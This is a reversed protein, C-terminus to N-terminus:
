RNVEDSDDTLSAGEPIELVELDPAATLAAILEHSGGIVTALVLWLNPFGANGLGVVPGAPGDYRMVEVIGIPAFVDLYFAVSAEVDDCQLGLHDLM